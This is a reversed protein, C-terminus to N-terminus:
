AVILVKNNQFKGLCGDSLLCSLLLEFVFRATIYVSVPDSFKYFDKISFDSGGTVYSLYSNKLPLLHSLATDCSDSRIRFHMTLFRQATNQVIQHIVPSENGSKDYHKSDKMENLLSDLASTKGSRKDKVPHASASALITYIGYLTKSQPYKNSALVHFILAALLTYANADLFGPASKKEGYKPPKFFNSLVLDAVAPGEATLPIEELPNFRATDNKSASNIQFVRSFEQRSPATEQFLKGKPDFIIMSLPYDIFSNYSEGRHTKAALLADKM